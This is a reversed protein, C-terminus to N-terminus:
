RGGAGAAEILREANRYAFNEQVGPALQGIFARAYDVLRRSVQLDWGWLVIGGRDTGWMFRDPHAEITEKWFALDYELMPPYDDSKNMFGAATEKPHLLYQDGLLADITYYINPYSNMLLGIDDQAQDGHAIFTIDPNEAFLQSLNETQGDDPHMYVMMGLQQVVPLTSRLESDSLVDESRKGSANFRMEGLGKFIGPYASLMEKLRTGGVTTVDYVEGPPSVFPVFLGPYRETAIRAIELASDPQSTFVSFYSFGGETGDARLTCAVEDMTINNGAVPIQDMFPFGELPEDFDDRNSYDSEAFGEIEREGVEFGLPTDPLQPMHMHTDILRGQYYGGAYTLDASAPCETTSFAADVRSGWAREYYVLTPDAAPSASPPAPADPPVDTPTSSPPASADPPLGTPTPSPPALADSSARDPGATPTSTSAPARQSPTQQAAPTPAERTLLAGDGSCASLLVALPLGLVFLRMM